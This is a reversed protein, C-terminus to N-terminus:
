TVLTSLRGLEWTLAPGVGTGLACAFVPIAVDRWDIKHLPEGRRMLEERIM